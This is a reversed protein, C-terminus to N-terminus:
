FWIYCGLIFYANFRRNQLEYLWRRIEIDSASFLKRGTTRFPIYYLYCIM